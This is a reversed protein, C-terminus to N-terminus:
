CGVCTGWSDAADVGCSVVVDTCQVGDFIHCRLGGTTVYCLRCVWGTRMIPLCWCQCSWVKAVVGVVAESVPVVSGDALTVPASALQAVDAIVAGSPPLAVLAVGSVRRVLDQFVDNRAVFDTESNIQVRPPAWAVAAVSSEPVSGDALGYPVTILPGCSPAFLVDGFCVATAHLCPLTVVLQPTEHM